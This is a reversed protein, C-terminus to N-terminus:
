KQRYKFKRTQTHTQAHLINKMQVNGGIEVNIRNEAALRISIKWAILRRGVNLEIENKWKKKNLGDSDKFVGYTVYSFFLILLLCRSNNQKWISIHQKFVAYLFLRLFHISIFNLIRDCEVINAIWYFSFNACFSILILTFLSNWITYSCKFWKWM